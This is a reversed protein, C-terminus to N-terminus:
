GGDILKYGGHCPPAVGPAVRHSAFRGDIRTSVRQRCLPCFAKPMRTIFRSKSAAYPTVKAPKTGSGKCKEPVGRAGYDTVSGRVHFDLM